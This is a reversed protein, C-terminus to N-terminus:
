GSWYPVADDPDFDEMTTQQWRDRILRQLRESADFGTRWAIAPIGAPDLAPVTREVYPALWGRLKDAATRPASAAESQEELVRRLAEPPLLGVPCGEHPLSLGDVALTRMLKRAQPSHFVENFAESADTGGFLLLSAEMGPHNHMFPTVDYVTGNIFLWCSSRNSHGEVALRGWHREGSPTGLAFYHERWSCGKPPCLAGEPLMREMANYRRMVLQRWLQPEAALQGWQRAVSPLACLDRPGLFSLIQSTVVCDPLDGFRCGGVDALSCGGAGTPEIPGEDDGVGAGLARQPEDESFLVLPDFRPDDLLQQCDTTEDRALSFGFQLPILM